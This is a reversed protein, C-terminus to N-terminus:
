KQTSLIQLDQYCEDISDNIITTRNRGVFLSMGQKVVVLMVIAILFITALENWIRLQMSSYKFKGAM